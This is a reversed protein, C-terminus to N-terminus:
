TNAKALNPSLLELLSSKGSNNSGIITVVPTEINISFGGEKLSAPIRSYGVVKIYKIRM